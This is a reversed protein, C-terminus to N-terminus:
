YARFVYSFYYRKTYPPYTTYKNKKMDNIEKINTM